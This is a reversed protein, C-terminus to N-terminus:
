EEMPRNVHLAKRKRHSLPGGKTLKANAKAIASDKRGKALAALVAPHIAKRPDPRSAVFGPPWDISFRWGADFRSQIEAAAKAISTM